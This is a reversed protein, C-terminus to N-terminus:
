PTLLIEKVLSRIIDAAAMRKTESDERLALYLEAVQARYHHAM